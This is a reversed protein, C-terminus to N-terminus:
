AREVEYTAPAAGGIKVTKTALTSVTWFLGVVFCWKGIEKVVTNGALVWILVGVVAILLPWIAILM